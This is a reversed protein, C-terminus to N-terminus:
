FSLDTTRWSGLAYLTRLLFIDRLMGLSDVVVNLHSGDIERWAVPLESIPIAHKNTLLLVEIDFAWRRLHQTPFILKAAERTFMKFGCQTDSVRFGLALKLVVGGVSSILQRIFTREM